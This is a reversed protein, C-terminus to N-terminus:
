RGLLDVLESINEKAVFPSEKFPNENVSVMGTRKNLRRIFSVNVIYSRHTKFFGRPPLLREIASLNEAVMETDGQKLYIETYNRDAKCWLIDEPMIWVYGDEGKFHIKNKVSNFEDVRKSFNNNFKYDSYKAIVEKLKRNDVPKLLFNFPYYEFSKAAYKDHATVFIVDLNIEPLDKLEDLLDFGSKEPLNIDLFVLHPRQAFIIKRADDVNSAEGIIEVNEIMQLQLRLNERVTEMDDVILAKIKQPKQM